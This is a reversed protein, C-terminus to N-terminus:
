SHIPRSSVFSYIRLIYYHFACVLSSLNAISSSLIVLSYLVSLASRVSFSSVNKISSAIDAPTTFTCLYFIWRLGLRQALCKAGHNSSVQLAALYVYLCVLRKYPFFWLRVLYANLCYLYIHLFYLACMYNRNGSIIFYFGFAKQFSSLYPLVSAFV